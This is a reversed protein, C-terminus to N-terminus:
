PVKCHLRSYAAGLIFCFIPSICLTIYGWYPSGHNGSRTGLGHQIEHRWFLQKQRRRPSMRWFYCTWLALWAMQLAHYQSVFKFCPCVYVLGRGPRCRVCECLWIVGPWAIPQHIHAGQKLNTKLLQSNTFFGWPRFSRFPFIHFSHVRDECYFLCGFREKRWIRWKQWFRWKAMENSNKNLSKRM